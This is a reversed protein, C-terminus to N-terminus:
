YKLSERTETVPELETFGDKLHSVAQFDRCVAVLVVANVAAGSHLLVMFIVHLHQQLNSANQHHGDLILYAGAAPRSTAGGGSSFFRFILVQEEFLM